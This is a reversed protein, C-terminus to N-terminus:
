QTLLESKLRSAETAAAGEIEAATAVELRQILLQRELSARADDSYNKAKTPQQWKTTPPAASGLMSELEELKKAGEKSRATAWRLTNQAVVLEASINSDATAALKAKIPNITTEHVFLDASQQQLTSIEDNISNCKAQLANNLSVLEQGLLQWKESDRSESRQIHLRHAQEQHDSVATELKSELERIDADVQRRQVGAREAEALMKRLEDRDSPLGVGAAQHVRAATDRQRNYSEVTIQSM